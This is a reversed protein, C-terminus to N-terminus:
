GRRKSWLAYGGAVLLAGGIALGIKNRLPLEAIEALTPCVYAGHPCADTLTSGPHWEFHDPDDINAFRGGWIGGHQEWWLGLKEYLAVPYGPIAIDVARGHTHWSFCGPAGTVIPGPAGRGQAYLANQTDCTRYTSSVTAPINQDAAYRLLAKAASRTDPTLEALLDAM